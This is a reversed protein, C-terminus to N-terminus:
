QLFTLTSSVELDFVRGLTSSRAFLVLICPGKKKFCCPVSSVADAFLKNVELYVRWLSEDFVTTKGFDDTARM